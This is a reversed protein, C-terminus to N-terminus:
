KFIKNVDIDIINTGNAEDIKLKYIKGKFFADASNNSKGIYNNSREANPILGGTITDNSIIENNKEISLNYKNDQRAISIKYNNKQNLPAEKSYRIINQSGTYSEVKLIM